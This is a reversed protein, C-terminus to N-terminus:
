QQAVTGDQLGLSAALVDREWRTARTTTLSTRGCLDLLAAADEKSVGLSTKLDFINVKPITKLVLSAESIMRPPDVM